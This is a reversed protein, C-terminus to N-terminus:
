QPHMFPAPVPNLLERLRTARAGTTKREDLLGQAARKLAPNQMGARLVKLRLSPGM